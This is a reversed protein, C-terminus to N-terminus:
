YNQWLDFAVVDFIAVDTSAARIRWDCGTCNTLKGKHLWDFNADLVFNNVYDNKTREPTTLQRARQASYAVNYEYSCDTKRDPGLQLKSTPSTLEYARNRLWTVGNRLDTEPM